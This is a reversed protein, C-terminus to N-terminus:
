ELSLRRYADYTQGASHAWTYNERIYKCFTKDVSVSIARKLAQAISEVSYPDCYHAFDGFYSRSFGVDGIVVNKDFSIAEMTTLSCTEFFSPLAHIECAKYYSSLEAHPVEGIYIRNSDLERYIEQYYDSQSASLGGILVLSVNAIKCARILNLQNKLEEIRAVCLVFNQFPIEFEDHFSDFDVGNNIVATSNLLDGFDRRVADLEAQSNPLILDIHPLNKKYLRDYRAFFIHFLDNLCVDNDRSIEKIYELKMYGFLYYIVKARWDRRVRREFDDYSVYITSMVLKPRPLRKCFKQVVKNMNRQLNLGTFHVIDPRFEAAANLCSTVFVDLGLHRLWEATKYM